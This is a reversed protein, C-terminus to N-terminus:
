SLFDELAAGLTEYDKLPLASLEDRSLGTLNSLMALGRETDDEIKSVALQDGVTPERLQVEAGSKPLKVTKIEPQYTVM